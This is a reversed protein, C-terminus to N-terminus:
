TRVSQMLTTNKPKRVVTKKVGCVQNIVPTWTHKYVHHGRIVTEFHVKFYMKFEIPSIDGNKSQKSLYFVARELVSRFHHWALRLGPCVVSGCIGNVNSSTNRSILTFTGVSRFKVPFKCCQKM